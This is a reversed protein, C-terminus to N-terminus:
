LTHSNLLNETNQSSQILQKKKEEKEKKQQRKKSIAYVGGMLGILGGTLAIASYTVTNNPSPGGAKSNLEEAAEEHTAEENLTETTKTEPKTELTEEQTASQEEFNQVRSRGTWM